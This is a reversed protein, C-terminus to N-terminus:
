KILRITLPYRYYHGDNAKIAAIILFVLDLIAIAGGVLPILFAGVCTILCLISGVAGYILMSIQFNVAEKGHQDVFPSEEKKIMWVILPGIVAGVAPVVLGGLGALHCFMAWMRADRNMESDSQAEATPVPPEAGPSEVGESAQNTESM